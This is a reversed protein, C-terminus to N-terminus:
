VIPPLKIPNRGPNRPIPHAKLLTWPHYGHVDCYALSLKWTKYVFRRLEQKNDKEM